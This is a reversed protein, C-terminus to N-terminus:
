GSKEATMPFSIGQTSVTGKMKKKKVTVAIELTESGTYLEMYFTDDERIELKNFSFTEGDDTNVEGVLLGDKNEIMISGTLDGQDTEVLYRWTGIVHKEKLKAFSPISILLVFILLMSKKM